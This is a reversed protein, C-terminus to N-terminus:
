GMSWFNPICIYESADALYLCLSASYNAGGIKSSVVEQIESTNYKILLRNTEGTNSIDTYGGIEIIEDKGANGTPIESSIFTDKEPFIRYVAM